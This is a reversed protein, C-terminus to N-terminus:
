IHGELPRIIACVSRDLQMTEQHLARRAVAHFWTMKSRLPLASRLFRADERMLRCGDGLLATVRDTLDTGHGCAVLRSTLIDKGGSFIRLTAITPWPPDPLVVSASASRWMAPAVFRSPRTSSPVVTQSWSGSSCARPKESEKATAGKSHFPWLTLRM